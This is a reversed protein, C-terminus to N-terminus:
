THRPAEGSAGVYRLVATRLGSAREFTRLLGLSKLRELDGQLAYQGRDRVVRFSGSPGSLEVYYNGFAASDYHSGTERIGIRALEALLAGIDSMIRADTVDM